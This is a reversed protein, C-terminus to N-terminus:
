ARAGGGGTRSRGCGAESRGKPEVVGNGAIAGSPGTVLVVPRATRKAKEIDKGRADDPSGGFVAGAISALCALAFIGVVIKMSKM